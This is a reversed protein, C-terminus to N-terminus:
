KGSYQAGVEAAERGEVLRGEQDIVGGANNDLSDTNLAEKLGSDHPFVSLFNKTTDMRMQAAPPNATQVDERGNTVADRFRTGVGGCDADGSWRGGLSFGRLCADTEDDADGPTDRLV